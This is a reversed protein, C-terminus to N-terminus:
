NKAMKRTVRRSIMIGLEYLVLVPMSVLIQSTLDPPTIIASIVLIGVLAHRRYSKLL